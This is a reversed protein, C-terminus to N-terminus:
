DRLKNLAQTLRQVAEELTQMSTAYSLRVHQTSGFAEGPVIAVSAEELMYACFDIPNKIVGKTHARGFCGSINPFLYFAGKPIECSIGPMKGVETALYSRRKGFASLMESLIKDDAKLAAISAKQSISCPNSTTHSQIKNCAKILPQPALMYGIRWGTMAYTKSVGNILVLRDRLESFDALSAHQLGDYIIKEYIEDFIVTIDHKVIVEVLAALEEKSYIAGTPNSPSNLMLIKTHSTISQQLQAASIKFGTSEDTEIIIPTAGAFRAQEIYSTWYPAPIIIDDGPECLALMVNVISHKAGCSVLVEAPSYNVNREKLYKECITERLEILGAISTYKTYGTEIAKIGADKILEPTDFDPEGAGLDVIKKGERRMSEVLATIALTQSPQISHVRQTFKM